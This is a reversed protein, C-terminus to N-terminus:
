RRPTARAAELLSKPVEVISVEDPEGLGGLLSRIAPGADALAATDLREGIAAHGAEAALAPARSTLAEVGWAVSAGAPAEIRTEAQKEAPAHYHPRECFLDLRLLEVERGDAGAGFVHLTVGGDLDGVERRCAVLRLGGVALEADPGKRIELRAMDTKADTASM